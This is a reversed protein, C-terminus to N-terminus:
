KQSVICTSLRQRCPGVDVGEAKHKQQRHGGGRQLVDVVVPQACALHAADAVAKCRKEESGGLAKDKNFADGACPPTERSMAGSSVLTVSSTRLLWTYLLEPLPLPKTAAKLECSLTSACAEQLM